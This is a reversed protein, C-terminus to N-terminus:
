PPGSDLEFEFDSVAHDVPYSEGEGQMLIIVKLRNKLPKLKGRTCCSTALRRFIM